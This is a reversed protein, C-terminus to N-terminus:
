TAKGRLARWALSLASFPKAAGDPMDEDALVAALNRAFDAVIENSVAAIVGQARGYQAVLGSLQLDTELVVRAGTGAPEVRMRTTANAAGRGQLDAGKGKIVATRAVHDIAEITVRGNFTLAVPGLKVSVRGLYAGAEVGAFEAGRLCQAVAPVDLLMAFTEDPARPSAFSNSLILGDDGGRANAGASWPAIAGVSAEAQGNVSVHIRTLAPAPSASIRSWRQM